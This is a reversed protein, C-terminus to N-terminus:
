LSKAAEPTASTLPAQKRLTETKRLPPRRLRLRSAGYTAARLPPFCFGPPFLRLSVPAVSSSVFGQLDRWILHLPPVSSRWVLFIKQDGPIQHRKLNSATGDVSIQDLPSWALM